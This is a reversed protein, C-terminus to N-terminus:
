LGKRQDPLKSPLPPQQDNPLQWIVPFGFRLSASKYELSSIEMRKTEVQMLALSGILGGVQSAKTELAKLRDRELALANEVEKLQTAANDPPVYTKENATYSFAPVWKSALWKQNLMARSQEYIAIRTAILAHLVSGAGYRSQEQKAEEIRQDIAKLDRALDSDGMVQCGLLLFTTLCVLFRSRLAIWDCIAVKAM